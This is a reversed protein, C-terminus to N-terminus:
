AAWSTAWYTDCRRCHYFSLYGSADADWRTVRALNPGTLCTPCNDPRTPDPSSLIDM